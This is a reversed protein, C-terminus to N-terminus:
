LYGLAKLEELYEEEIEESGTALPDALMAEYKRALWRVLEDSEPSREGALNDREQADTMLDYFEDQGHSHLIYKYRENQAAIILGPDWGWKNVDPPNPPRRQSYAYASPMPAASDELLDVLSHGEFDAVPSQPIGMLELVTPLLDVHRVMPEVTGGARWSDAGYLVLPVRLQEQYLYKGHGIFGHDGLAEGHDAVIIWLNREGAAELSGFLRQLQSDVFAIQADYFNIRDELEDLETETVGHQRMWHPRLIASRQRADVRMRELEDVPALHNRGTQHVDFLHVWAFLRRGSDRDGFWDIMADVTLDASRHQQRRPIDRNVLEFGSAVSGLFRASPFAVTEFGAKGLLGALTPIGENLKIGNYLVRHRAPYQSTFLSAHAPGTHSSSSIAREFQLGKAALSDIFPSVARPYGYCGLHDARLTDITVLIVNDFTRDQQGCGLIFGSLLLSTAVSRLGPIWRRTM